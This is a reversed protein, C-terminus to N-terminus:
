RKTAEAVWADAAINYRLRTSCEEFTDRRKNLAILELTEKSEKDDKLKLELQRKLDADSWAGCQARVRDKLDTIYGYFDQVFELATIPRINDQGVSLIEDYYKPKVNMEELYSRILINMKNEELIVTTIDHTQLFENSLFPRHFGLNVLPSHGNGDRYIGGVFAFFCSSACTYKHDPDTIGHQKLLFEIQMRPEDIPVFTAVRYKRILRGIKIAEVLDGGPSALIIEYHPAIALETALKEADGQKIVGELITAGLSNSGPVFPDHHIDASFTGASIFVFAAIAFLYTKFCTRAM